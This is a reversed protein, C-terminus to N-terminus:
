EKAGKWVEAVRADRGCGIRYPLYRGPNTDHFDQHYVEAPWFKQGPVIETAIPRGLVGSKRIADESAKAAALQADSQPFIAPRYQDGRDCFQGGGDTPDHHRWFWDLVKDYSVIAPDFVVYVVETHGTGGLGVQDYTPQETRGGAFGSTTSIVGPLKDFDAELCWFCGGAFLAAEQGPGVAPVPAPAHDGASPPAATGDTTCALLTLLTPLM